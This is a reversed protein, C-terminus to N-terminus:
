KKLKHFCSRHKQLFHFTFCIKKVRPVENFPKQMGVPPASSEKQLIPVTKSLHQGFHLWHIARLMFQIMQHDTIKVASHHLLHLLPSYFFLTRLYKLTTIATVNIITNSCHTYWLLTPSPTVYGLFRSDSDILLYWDVWDDCSDSDEVGAMFVESCSTWGTGLYTSHHRNSSAIQEVGAM